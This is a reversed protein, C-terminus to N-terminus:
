RARRQPILASLGSLWGTFEVDSMAMTDVVRPLRLPNSERRAVQPECTTASVVGRERLWPYFRDDVDGDPYCFHRRGGAPWGMRDLAARNDDLERLFLREDRPARHRHTHLQVDVLAPSLSATEAPTLLHLLRRAKLASYDIGLGDALRAALDDKEQACLGRAVVHSRIEAHLRARALEGMPVVVARGDATLGELAVPRGRGKWLLYSCMVDFVPLAHVMYYTAAYLTAPYGYEALLPYAKEHFDHLGDDFTLAVSRPPLTRSQLRALAEDLPLVTCHSRRLQEFRARLHEASVHEQGWQHEDDLSVGHYCLVLLRDTRWRSRSLRDFAGLRRAARLAAIKLRRVNTV